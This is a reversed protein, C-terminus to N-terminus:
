VSSRVNECSYPCRNKGMEKHCKLGIMHGCPKLTIRRHNASDYSKYCVICTVAENVTPRSSNPRVIAEAETKKIGPRNLMSKERYLKIEKQLKENQDVLSQIQSQQIANDENNARKLAENQSM